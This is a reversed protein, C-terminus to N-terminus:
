PHERQMESQAFVEHLKAEQEAPLFTNAMQRGDPYL